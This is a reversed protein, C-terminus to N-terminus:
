VQRFAQRNFASDESFNLVVIAPVYLQAAHREGGGGSDQLSHLLPLLVSDADSRVLASRCFRLNAK